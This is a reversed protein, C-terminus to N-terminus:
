MSPSRLWQCSNLNPERCQISGWHNLLLSEAQLAPSALEMGPTPLDGLPLYPLGSWYEQRSFGPCLLKAPQREGRQPRPFGDSYCHECSGGGQTHVPTQPASCMSLGTPNKVVRIIYCAPSCQLFSSQRQNNPPFSLQSISYGPLDPVISLM